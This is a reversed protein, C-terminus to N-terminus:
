AQCAHDFGHLVVAVERVQDGHDQPGDRVDQLAVAALAVERQLVAPGPVRVPRVLDPLVTDGDDSVVLRLDVVEDSALQERQRRHDIGCRTAVEARVPDQRM